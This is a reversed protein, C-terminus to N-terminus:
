NVQSAVRLNNDHATLADESLIRSQRTKILKGKSYVKTNIMEWDKTHKDQESEYEFEM